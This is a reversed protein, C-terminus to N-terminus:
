LRKKLIGDNFQVQYNIKPKSTTVTFIFFLLLLLTYGLNNIYQDSILKKKCNACLSKLCALCNCIKRCHPCIWRRVKFDEGPYHRTLCSVGYSMVCENCKIAEDLKHPHHCQHCSIGEKKQKQKGNEKTVGIVEKKRPM